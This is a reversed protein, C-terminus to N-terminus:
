EKPCDRPPFGYKELEELKSVIARTNDKIETLLATTDHNFHTQLDQMMSKLDKGNGNSWGLKKLIAPLLTDKGFLLAIMIIILIEQFNWNEM